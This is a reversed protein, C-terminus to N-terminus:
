GTSEAEMRQPLQVRFTAGAGPHSSVAITGGLAQVITRVIHLGLGLGDCPPSTTGRQFAEFIRTQAAEPIGAGQDRVVLAAQGLYGRVEVQIPLGGGFKIANTLLNTAVQDLRLPDWMGVVTGDALLSVTSGARRAEHELRAIVERVVELLDTRELELKLSGARIRGLDLLKEVLAAVRRQSRDLIELTRPVVEPAPTGDRLIQIALRMSSIPGGIEHAAISLLEDRTRIAEEAQSRLREEESVDRFVVVRGIIESDIQQPRGVREVVRGDKFRLTLFCPRDPHAQNERTVDVFRHPDCLQDAVYHILRQNGSSSALDDPIQWLELFRQNYTVLAGGRDVALIGDTTADLTGRLMSYCRGALDTTNAGIASPPIFTQDGEAM